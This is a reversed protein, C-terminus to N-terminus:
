ISFHLFLFYLVCLIESIKSYFLCQIRFNDSNNIIKDSVCVSNVSTVDSYLLVSLSCNSDTTSSDIQCNQVNKFINEIIYDVLKGKISHVSNYDICLLILLSVESCKRIRFLFNLRMPQEFNSEANVRLQDYILLKAGKGIFTSGCASM